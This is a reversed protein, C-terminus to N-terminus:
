KIKVDLVKFTFVYENTIGETALPLLVKYVKGIYKSARSFLEEKNVDSVPLLPQSQWREDWHDWYVYDTPLIYDIITSGSPVTTPPKPNDRDIYRVGTHMVRHAVGNEDVFAAEDWIIKISHKSKNTLIFAFEYASPAWVIKIINDEFYCKYIDKEEIKIIKQKGYRKETDASHEVQTLGIDYDIDYHVQHAACEALFTILMFVISVLYRM